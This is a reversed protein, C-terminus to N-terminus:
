RSAARDGAAAKRVTHMNVTMAVKGDKHEVWTARLEDKGVFEFRADHMHLTTAADINTGGDFRFDVTNGASEKARMRPQNGTMCYHTLVLDKGDNHYVTTMAHPSGPFLDEVVASGGGTVTYRAVLDGKKVMPNDEAAVWEGALGKFRDLATPAPADGAGAMVAGLALLGAMAVVNTKKMETEEPAAM